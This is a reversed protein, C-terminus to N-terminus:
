IKPDIYESELTIYSHAMPCISFHFLIMYKIATFTEGMQKVKGFDTMQKKIYKVM